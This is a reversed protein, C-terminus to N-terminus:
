WSRMSLYESGHILVLLRRRVEWVGYIRFAQGNESSLARLQGRCAKWVVEILHPSPGKCRSYIIIGVRDNWVKWGNWIYWEVM